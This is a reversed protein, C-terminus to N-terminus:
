GYTSEGNERKLFVNSRSKTQDDARSAPDLDDYPLCVVSTFLVLTFFPPKEPKKWL